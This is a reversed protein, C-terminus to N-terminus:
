CLAISTALYKQFGMELEEGLPVEEWRFVPHPIRIAASFGSPECLGCLLAGLVGQVRDKNPCLLWSWSVAGLCVM